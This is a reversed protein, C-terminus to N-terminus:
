LTITGDSKIPEPTYFTGSKISYSYKDRQRPNYSDVGEFNLETVSYLSSSLNNGAFQLYLNRIRRCETELEAQYDNFAKSAVDADGHENLYVLRPQRVKSLLTLRREAAKRVEDLALEVDMWKRYDQDDAAQQGERIATLLKDPIKVTDGTVSPKAATTSIVQVGKAELSDVLEKLHAYLWDRTETNLGEVFEGFASDVFCSAIAELIAKDLPEKGGLKTFGDLRSRLSPNDLQRVFLSITSSLAARYLPGRGDPIGKSAEDLFGSVLTKLPSKEILHGLLSETIGTFKDAVKGVAWGAFDGIAKDIVKELGAHLIGPLAKVANLQYGRINQLAQIDDPSYGDSGPDKSIIADYKQTLTANVKLL